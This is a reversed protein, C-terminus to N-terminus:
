YHLYSKSLLRNCTVYVKPIFLNLVYWSKLLLQVTISPKSYVKVLGVISIYNSVEQVVAKFKYM